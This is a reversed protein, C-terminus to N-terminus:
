KLIAGEIFEGLGNADERGIVQDAAEKLEIVANGMAVKHGVAQFLHLDNFGDGVGAVNSRDVGLLSCLEIVAHEKTSNENTIHLDIGEPITWSHAKSVTIGKIPELAKILEVESGIAIDM